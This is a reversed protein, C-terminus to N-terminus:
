DFSIYCDQLLIIVTQRIMERDRFAVEYTKAKDLIMSEAEAVIEDIISEILEETFVVGKSRREYKGLYKKCVRYIRYNYAKVRRPMSHKGQEYKGDVYEDLLDDVLNEDVDSIVARIKTNLDRRDKIELEDWKENMPDVLGETVVERYFDHFIVKVDSVSILKNLFDKQGNSSDFLEKLKSFIYDEYKEDINMEMSLLHISEKIDRIIDVDNCSNFNWEILRLFKIWQDRTYSNFLEVYYADIKKSEETKKVKKKKLYQERLVPVIFDVVTEVEDDILKQLIGCKPLKGKFGALVGVANETAIDATTYFVFKIKESEEVSRWNELFIILSKKVDSSNLSLDHAVYKNQETEIQTIEQSRDIQLVDDYCEVACYISKKNERVADLLRKMARYRQLEIGKISDDADTNGKKMILEAKKMSLGM